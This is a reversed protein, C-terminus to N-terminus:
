QLHFNFSKEIFSRGRSCYEAMLCRSCKFLKPVVVTADSPNMAKDFFINNNPCELHSCRDLVLVRAGLGLGEGAAKVGIGSNSDLASNLNILDQPGIKDERATYHSRSSM